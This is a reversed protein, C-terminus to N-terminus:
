IIKYPTPTATNTFQSYINIIRDTSFMILFPSSGDMIRSLIEVKIVVLWFIGSNRVIICSIRRRHHHYYYYLLWIYIFYIFARTEEFIHISIYFTLM